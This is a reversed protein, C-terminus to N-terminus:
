KAPVALALQKEIERSLDRSDPSTLSAYANVVSGDRGILYKYFNWRPAQGSQAALQQYFASAQPGKVSSKDFMPFKVGYTNECFDAIERSSGSEQNFDNSPFGLVVLGRDKYRSQLQELGKYQGTFGCFSATNVVLLVRGAYQCLSQPEEDQLRPFTHRLLAPCTAPYAKGSASTWTPTDNSASASKNSVIGSGSSTPAAACAIPLALFVAASLGILATKM